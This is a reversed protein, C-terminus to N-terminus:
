DHEGGATHGVEWEAFGTAINDEHLVWGGRCWWDAFDDAAAFTTDRELVAYIVAKAYREQQERPM